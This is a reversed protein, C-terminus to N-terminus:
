KSVVANDLDMNLLLVIVYIKLFTAVGMVSSLAMGKSIKLDQRLNNMPLNTYLNLHQSANDEEQM